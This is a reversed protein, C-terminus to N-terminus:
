SYVTRAIEHISLVTFIVYFFSFILLRKFVRSFDPKFRAHPQKERMKQFIIIEACYSLIIGLILYVAVYPGPYFDTFFKLSLSHLYAYALSLTFIHLIQDLFFLMVFRRNKKELNIKVSDILFHTVALAFVTIIATSNRLLPFLLSLSVAFYVFSHFLVGKWSKHKWTILRDSQLVFDSLFHGLLLYLFAM